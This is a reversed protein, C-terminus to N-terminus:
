GGEGGLELVVLARTFWSTGGEREGACRRVSSRARLGRKTVWSDVCGWRAACNWERREAASSMSLAYVLNKVSTCCPIVMHRWGAHM